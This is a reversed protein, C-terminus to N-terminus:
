LRELEALLRRTTQIAGAYYYQVPDRDNTVLVDIIADNGALNRMLNKLGKCEADSFVAHEKRAYLLLKEHIKKLLDAAIEKKEKLEGPKISEFENYLESGIRLRERMASTGGNSARYVRGVVFNLAKCTDEISHVYEDLKEPRFEEPENAKPLLERGELVVLVVTVLLGLVLNVVTLSGVNLQYNIAPNV